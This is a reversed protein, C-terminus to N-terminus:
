RPQTAPRKMIQAANAALREMFDVPTQGETRARRWMSRLVSVFGGTGASGVDLVRWRGDFHHLVVWGSRREGNPLAQAFEVVVRGGARTRATYDGFRSRALAQRMAPNAMVPEMVPFFLERMRRREATGLERFLEEFTDFLIQDLDFHQRVAQEVQGAVLLAHYAKVTQVAAAETPETAEAPATQAPRTAPEAASARPTVFAFCAALAVGRIRQNFRITRLM